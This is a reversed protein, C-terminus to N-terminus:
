LFSALEKVTTPTPWELLKKVMDQKMHIGEPSVWYRLYDVKQQLLFSKKARVCIGAERHIHFLKRLGVMRTEIEPTALIINDVYCVVYHSRLKDVLIQMFLSYVQGSNAPGFPM